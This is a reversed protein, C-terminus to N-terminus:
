PQAIADVDHAFNCLVGAASKIRPHHIPQLKQAIMLPM